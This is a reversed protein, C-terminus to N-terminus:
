NNLYLFLDVRKSTMTIAQAKVKKEYDLRNDRCLIFAQSNIKPENM